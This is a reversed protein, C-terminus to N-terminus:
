GPTVMTGVGSETFLELLLSHPQRGDIVHVQEVGHLADLCAKLKPIMGGSVEGREIMSTAETGTLENVLQQRGDLVGPVDTLLLLKSAGLAVALEAAVTDANINYAHGDYGLGISAVVPVYGRGVLATIPEPNIHTVRGVYGLEPDLQEAVICPGDEGSM